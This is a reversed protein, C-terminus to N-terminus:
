KCPKRCFWLWPETAKIGMRFWSQANQPLNSDLGITEDTPKEARFAQVSSLAAGGGLGM